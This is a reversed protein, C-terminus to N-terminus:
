QIGPVLRRQLLGHGADAPVQSHPVKRRKHSMLSQRQRLFELLLDGVLFQFDRQVLVQHLQDLLDFALIPLTTEVNALSNTSKKM